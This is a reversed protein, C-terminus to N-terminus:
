PTEQKSLALVAQPDIAQRGREIVEQANRFDLMMVDGVDPTILLDPPDDALAHRTMEVNFIRFTDVLVDAMTMKRFPKPPHKDPPNIDVAIVRDAGLARCAAIPLPNVLGGDVLVHGNREVPRFVGPIAMSALIASVLDGERMVVEEGTHLDTAVAAYPLSLADFRQAPILDALLKAVGDGKVLAKASPRSEFLIKPLKKWDPEGCWEFARDLTGAAFISGIIAGISTGAVCHIPIGLENLRQIVGLHALGRAGGGGLALGIKPSKKKM